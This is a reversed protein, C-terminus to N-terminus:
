NLLQKNNVEVMAGDSTVSAEEVLGLNALNEPKDDKSGPLLAIPGASSKLFANFPFSNTDDVVNYFDKEFFNRNAGQGEFANMVHFNQSRRGDIMIKLAM